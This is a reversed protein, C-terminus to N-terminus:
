PQWTWATERLWNVLRRSWSWVLLERGADIKAVGEMGPRLADSPRQDLVAEVRFTNM